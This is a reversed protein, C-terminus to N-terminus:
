AAKRESALVEAVRDTSIQWGDRDRFRKPQPPLVIQGQHEEDFEWRDPFVLLSGRHIM